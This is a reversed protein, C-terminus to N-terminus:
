LPRIKVRLRNYIVEDWCFNKGSFIYNSNPFVGYPDEYFNLEENQTQAIEM